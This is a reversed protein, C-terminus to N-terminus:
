SDNPDQITLYNRVVLWVRVSENWEGNDRAIWNWATEVRLANCLDLLTVLSIHFTEPVGVQIFYIEAQM